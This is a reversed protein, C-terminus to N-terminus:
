EKRLAHSVVSMWRLQLCGPRFRELPKGSDPSQVGPRAIAGVGGSCQEWIGVAYRGHRAKRQLPQRTAKQLCGNWKATSAPQLPPKLNVPPSVSPSGSACRSPAPASGASTAQRSNAWAACPLLCCWQAASSQWCGSAQAFELCAVLAPEAGAGDLHADPLGETEGGTFRFGGNCGAEVAFHFPQKCFAVLCGRWLFARCPRYATPIHSCHLPPTPAM